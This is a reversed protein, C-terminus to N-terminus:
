LEEFLIQLENLTMREVTANGIRNLLVFHITDGERKKDKTLANFIRTKDTPLHTPLKIKELLRIVRETEAPDILGRKESIAAAISMGISVAKGHPINSTKEIAHGFTHGFNLKRREGKEKEDRNVVSSKIKVSDYVLKGMIKRNLSFINECQEEIYAFLNKDKIAAHKVIEALGCLLEDEPLTELLSLDCIVFDPQNFLGIMNKYGGFNVGNKGGVSADVQALLTSAVFGFRIGRMYTSAAFGTIDCVIGGGIGAIFSSRDVDLEAFKEYLSQVTDLTKIQEGTGITIVDAPPFDKQYYQFVNTDTIVVLKGDPISQSLDRLKGDILITSDGTSGRVVINQM